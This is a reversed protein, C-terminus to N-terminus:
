SRVKVLKDLFAILGPPDDTVIGDLQMAVASSWERSDNVTWANVQMGASHAEVVAEPRLSGFCPHWITTGVKRAYEPLDIFLADALLATKLHPAKRHVSRVVGHDFSSIIIKDVHAYSSLLEILDDDIGPYDIPTNKIEINIVLKGDVLKLVDELLPIREQAFKADYWSGADLRKLEPYTIDKILGVGNTTRKVDDDHIVVLEGSACRHIDLEIGYAGAEISKSFAAMTNEPAWVKGGRHAIVNPILDKM